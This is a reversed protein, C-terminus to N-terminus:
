LTWDQSEIGLFKKDRFGICIGHEEDCRYFLGGSRDRQRFSQDNHYRQQEFGQDNCNGEKGERNRRQEASRGM